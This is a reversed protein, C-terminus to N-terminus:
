KEFHHDDYKQTFTRGWRFGLEKSKLIVPHEPYFTGPLSPNYSANKPLTQRVAYKEKWRLPNYFPNIDIARGMAHKSFSINRYCFSYTNNDQMSLEDDWNYKVIPIAKAVPFNSELIFDFLELIDNAILKNTLIQGQHLKNDISYYLVTILELKAIIEKPANSGITADEFSYNCDVILTDNDKSIKAKSISIEATPAHEKNQKTTCSYLFFVFLIEIVIIKNFM